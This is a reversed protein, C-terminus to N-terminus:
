ICNLFVGEENRLNKEVRSDHLLYDVALRTKTSVALHLASNGGADVANVDIRPYMLLLRLCSVSRRNIAAFHLLTDQHAYRRNIDIRRTSLVTRALEVDGNAIAISLLTRGKGDPADPAFGRAILGRVAGVDGNAAFNYLLESHLLRQVDLEVEPDSVFMAIMPFNHLLLAIAFASRDAEDVLNPMIDQRSLLLSVVVHKECLTALHLPTLSKEDQANVDIDDRALMLKMVEINGSHAVIHLPTRGHEGPFNVNMEPVGILLAACSNAGSECATHLLSNGQADAANVALQRSQVLLRLVDRHGKQVATRAALFVQDSTQCHNMFFEVVKCANSDAAALFPTFGASNRVCVDSPSDMLLLAVARVDDRRASFHLPLDGSPDPVSPSILGSDLIFKIVNIHCALAALM